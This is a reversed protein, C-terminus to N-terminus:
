LPWGITIANGSSSKGESVYAKPLNQVIWIDVGVRQFKVGRAVNSAWALLNLAIRTMCAEPKTSADARAEVEGFSGHVHQDSRRKGDKVDTWDNLITNRDQRNM